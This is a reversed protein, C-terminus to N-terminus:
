GREKFIKDLEELLKKGKFKYSIEILEINNNKCFEKKINDRTKVKEFNDKGGFLKNTYNM